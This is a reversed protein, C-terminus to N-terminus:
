HAPDEVLGRRHAIAVAETRGSAGLKAVINSVHVSATKDSIYLERGIQRNTRGRSLLALVDRERPTFPSVAPEGAAGPLGADLRGRRVLSEVAASLPRAGLRSAVDYAAKAEETAATRDDAALLVEALRWRSRAQEYVHGYDFAEVAARWLSPDQSGQARAWEAEARALWALAEVGLPGSCTVSTSAIERVQRILRDASGVPGAARAADGLMRASGAQDALAGLTLALLRVLGLVEPGWLRSVAEVTEESLSLAREPETWSALDVACTGATLLRLPNDDSAMFEAALRHELGPEGRGVAVFFGATAVHKASSPAAGGALDAARLSADWDGAVYRVVALLHRTETAYLSWSLGHADAHRAGLDLWRLAGALDGSEYRVVALSYIARQEVDRDDSRRAREYAEELRATIGNADSRRQDMRALTITTDAWAADLGLAEAGALAEEAAQHAGEHDDVFFATRVHTAAAWTRAASPPDSPLLDLAASTEVYAAQDLDLTILNQALTYRVRAALELDAPSDVRELAARTLAVARQSEGAQAAANSASLMLSVEDRGTLEAAEPVAAWLTLAGQLQHLQEAPAGLRRAEDAADLAAVLAGALDNSERRHYALEAASGTGIAGNALLEAFLAHIRVREGPLLDSYAAERLLAHRFAYTQDERPMLVHRTVAERLAGDLDTESLGSADRLLAHQVRRGAVAAIRVVRQAASPLQELRALLVDALGVPITDTDRDLSAQLLQEAYFANGEARDVIRRVDSDALGDTYMSQLLVAIEADALPAVQLREVHQLRALEALLPRLPHRRHLDDARYSGVILLQQRELRSLLFRLLDRTSQDAWHLDEIVLLTPRRASVEALLAAVADFLHLQNAVGVPASDATASSGGLLPVLVPYRRALDAGDDEAEAVARLIETFPLYPLGVDGLDVCHGVLLTMGEARARRAVEGLLRTKGVGADGALLCASPEGRRAAALGDVLRGLEEARGVFPADFGWRPVLAITGRPVSLAADAFPAEPFGAGVYGAQEYGAQVYGASEVPQVTAVM